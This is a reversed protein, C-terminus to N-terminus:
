EVSAKCGALGGCGDCVHNSCCHDLHQSHGHERTHLNCRSKRCAWVSDDLSARREEGALRANVDGGGVKDAIAVRVLDGPVLLDGSFLVTARCWAAGHTYGLLVGKRVAPRDSNAVLPNATAESDLFREGVALGVFAWPGLALCDTDPTNVLVSGIRHSVGLAVVEVASCRTAGSRLGIDEARWVLTLLAPKVAFSATLAGRIAVSEPLWVGPKSAWLALRRVNQM